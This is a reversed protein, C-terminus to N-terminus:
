VAALSECVVPYENSCDEAKWSEHSRDYLVCMNGYYYYGDDYGNYRGIDLVKNFTAEEENLLKWTMSSKDLWMGLWVPEGGFSNAIFRNEEESNIVLVQSDQEKCFRRADMLDISTDHYFYCSDEFIKWGDPCKDSFKSLRFM